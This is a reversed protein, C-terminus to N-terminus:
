KENRNEYRALESAWYELDKKACAYGQGLFGLYFLDDEFALELRGEAQMVKNRLYKLENKIM